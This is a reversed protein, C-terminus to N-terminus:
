YMLEYLSIGSYLFCYYLTRPTHANLLKRVKCIISLGKAMEGKIYLISDPWILKEDLHVGLFKTKHDRKVAENKTILLHTVIPNCM